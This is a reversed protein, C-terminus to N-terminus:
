AKGSLQIGGFAKVGRLYEERTLKSNPYWRCLVVAGRHFFTDTKELRLWEDPTMGVDDVASDDIPM